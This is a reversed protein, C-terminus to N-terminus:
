SYPWKSLCLVWGIETLEHIPSRKLKNM